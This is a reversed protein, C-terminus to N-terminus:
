LTICGQACAACAYIAACSDVWGFMLGFMKRDDGFIYGISKDM